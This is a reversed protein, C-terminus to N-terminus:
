KAPTGPVPVVMQVCEGYRVQLHLDNDCENLTRYQGRLEWACSGPAACIWVLLLFYSM